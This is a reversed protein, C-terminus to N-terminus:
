LASRVHTSSQGAGAARKALLIAGLLGARGHLASLHLCSEVPTSGTRAPLYMGLMRRMSNRTPALLAPNSMVGGGFVIAQPSLLLTITAALQGLYYGIVDYAVHEPGLTALDAQWRERIATGSALGELCDRHFRCCGAFELDRPERRVYIDWRRTCGAACRAAPSSQAAASARASRSTPLRNAAAAPAWSCEALAAANVDTDIEILCDPHTELLPQLFSTYSWGEKPTALLRGWDPSERRLEVPGFAAIGIIRPANLSSVM